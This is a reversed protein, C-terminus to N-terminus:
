CGAQHWYCGEFSCLHTRRPHTVQSRRWVSGKRVGGARIDVAGEGARGKRWCRSIRVKSKAAREGRRGEVFGANHGEGHRQRAERGKMGARAARPQWELYLLAVPAPPWNGPFPVKRGKKRGERGRAELRATFRTSFLFCFSTVGSYACLYTPSCRSFVSGLSGSPIIRWLCFGFRRLPCSTCPRHFDGTVGRPRLLTQAM